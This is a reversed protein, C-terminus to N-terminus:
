ILERAAFGDIEELATLHFVAKGRAAETAALKRLEPMWSRDIEWINQFLAKTPPMEASGAPPEGLKGTAWAIQREAALWFHVWLPLDILVIETARALRAPASDQRGLGDILWREQAIIREHEARYQPAPTLRWGAQWLIRDIEVYPLDFRAAIKRSLVSKGGGSNGIVVVRKM